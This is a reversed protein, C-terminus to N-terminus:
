SCLPYGRSDCASDLLAGRGPTFLQRGPTILHTNVYFVLGLRSTFDCSLPLPWLASHDANIHNHLRHSKQTLSACLRMLITYFVSFPRITTRSNLRVVKCCISNSVIKPSMSERQKLVRGHPEHSARVFYRRRHQPCVFLLSMWLCQMVALIGQLFYSDTLSWRM